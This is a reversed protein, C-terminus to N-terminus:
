DGPPVVLSFGMRAGVTLAHLDQLDLQDARIGYFRYGAYIEVNWADLMQSAFVGVSHASDGDYLVEDGRSYDVASRTEGVEFWRRRLGARITWGSSRGDTRGYQEYFERVFKQRVAAVTLNLGTTRQYVGVGGDLRDDIRGAFPNNQVSGGAFVEFDDGTGSWRLSLDSGRATGVSAGLRFGGLLPSDYRIRDNRNFAEVDFFAANVTIDSLSQSRREVFKMGGFSTGPSLLNYRWTESKDIEVALFASMFGRGFWLRGFRAHDAVIELNRSSARWGPALNDQSVVAASNNQASFEFHGTLTVAGANKTAKVFFLTPYNANDVYYAETRAGDNVVNVARNLHVGVSLTAGDPATGANAVATLGLLMLLFVTLIRQM